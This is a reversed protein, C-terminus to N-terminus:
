WSGFRRPYRSESRIGSREPCRGGPYGRCAACRVGSAASRFMYRARRSFVLVRIAWEVDRELSEISQRDRWTSAHHHPSSVSIPIRPPRREQLTRRADGSEARRPADSPIPSRRPYDHDFERLLPRMSRPAPVVQDSPPLWKPRSEHNLTRKLTAAQRRLSREMRKHEKPGPMTEATPEPRGADM